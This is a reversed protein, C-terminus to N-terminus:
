YKCIWEGTAQDNCVRQSIPITKDLNNIAESLDKFMGDLRWTITIDQDNTLNIKYIETLYLYQLKNYIEQSIEDKKTAEWLDMLTIWEEIKDTKYMEQMMDNFDKLDSNLNDWLYKFSNEINSVIPTSVWSNYADLNALFTNKEEQSYGLDTLWREFVQREYTTDWVKSLAKWDELSTSSFNKRINNLREKFSALQSSCEYCNAPTEKDYFEELNKSFENKTLLFNKPIEWSNNIRVRYSKLIQENNMLIEWLVEHLDWSFSCNPLVDWSSDKCIDDTLTVDFYWNDYYEKIKEDINDSINKIHNHDRRVVESNFNSVSWMIYFKYYEMFGGFDTNTHIVAKLKKFSSIFWQIIGNLDSSKSNIVQNDINALIINTNRVYELLFAPTDTQIKCKECNWFTTFTFFTFLFFILIKIKKM